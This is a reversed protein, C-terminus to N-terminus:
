HQLETFKKILLAFHLLKWSSVPIYFATSPPSLLFFLPCCSPLHLAKSANSRNLAGESCKAGFFFMLCSKNLVWFIYSLWLSFSWTALTVLNSRWIPLERLFLSQKAYPQKASSGNAVQLWKPAVAAQMWFVIQNMCLGLTKSTM